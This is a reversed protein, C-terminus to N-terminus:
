NNIMDNLYFLQGILMLPRFCRSLNSKLIIKLGMVFTWLYQFLHIKILELSLSNMELYWVNLRLCNQLYPFAWYPSLMSSQMSFLCKLQYKAMKKVELSLLKLLLYIVFNIAKWILLFTVILLRGLIKRKLISKLVGYVSIEM